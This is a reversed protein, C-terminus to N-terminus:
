VFLLLLFANKFLNILNFSYTLVLLFWPIRLNISLHVVDM